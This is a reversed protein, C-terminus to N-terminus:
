RFRLAEGGHRSAGQTRPESGRSELTAQGAATGPKHQAQQLRYIMQEVPGGPAAQIVIFNILLIGLLTPVMLVLRRAIYGGM